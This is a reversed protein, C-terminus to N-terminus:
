ALPQLSGQPLHKPERMSTSSRGPLAEQSRTAGETLAAGLNAAGLGILEQNPDIRQRKKAALTQAVSVSEVFGIVSILLAPATSPRDSRAFVVASYAASAGQPVM